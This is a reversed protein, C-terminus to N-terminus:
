YDPSPPIPIRGMLWDVAFSGCNGLSTKSLYAPTLSSFGKINEKKLELVRNKLLVVIKADNEYAICYNVTQISSGKAIRVGFQALYQIEKEDAIISLMRPQGGGLAPSLMPFYFIPFFLILFILGLYFFVYISFSDLFQSHSFYACMSLFKGLVMVLGGACVLFVLFALGTLVFRTQIIQYEFFGLRSLYINWIFFGCVLCFIFLASVAKTSFVLVDSIRGLIDESTTKNEEM